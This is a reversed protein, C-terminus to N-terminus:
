RRTLSRLSERGPPVGSVARRDGVKEITGVARPEEIDPTGAVTFQRAIKM